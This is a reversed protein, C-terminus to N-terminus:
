GEESESIPKEQLLRKCCGCIRKIEKGTHQDRIIRREAKRASCTTDIREGNAYLWVCVASDDPTPNPM